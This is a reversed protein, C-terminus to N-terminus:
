KHPQFRHIKQCCDTSVFTHAHANSRSHKGSFYTHTIVNLRLDLIVWTNVPRSKKIRKLLSCCFYNDYYIQFESITRKRFRLKKLNEFNKSSTNQHM